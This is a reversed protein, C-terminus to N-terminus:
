WDWTNIDEDWLAWCEQALGAELFASPLGSMSGIAEVLQGDAYWSSIIHGQTPDSDDVGARITSSNIRVRWSINEGTDNTHTFFLEEDSRRVSHVTAIEELQTVFSSRLTIEDPAIQCGATFAIVFFSLLVRRTDIPPSTGRRWRCSNHEM